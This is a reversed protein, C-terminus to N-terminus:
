PKTGLDERSAPHTGPEPDVRLGLLIQLLVFLPTLLARSSKQLLDRAATAHRWTVLYTERLLVALVLHALVLVPIASLATLWAHSADPSYAWSLYLLTLALAGGVVFLLRVLRPAAPPTTSDM